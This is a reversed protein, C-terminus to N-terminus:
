KFFQITKSLLSDNQLKITRYHTVKHKNPDIFCHVSEQRNYELSGVHAVIFIKFLEQENDYRTSHDDVYSYALDDGYKIQTKLTCFNNADVMDFPILQFDRDAKFALDSLARQQYQHRFYMTTIAIVVMVFGFLFSLCIAKKNVLPTLAQFPRIIFSLKLTGLIEFHFHLCSFMDLTSNPLREVVSYKDTPM